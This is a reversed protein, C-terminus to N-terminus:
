IYKPRKKVKQLILQTMSLIDQRGLGFLVPKFYLLGVIMTSYLIGSLLFRIFINGHAIFIKDVALMAGASFILFVFVSLIQHKIYHLFNLKLLRCNFYLQVNVGIIQMIVMKIALGTAGANLGMKNEPAILFFGVPIGILMFVIGIKSYLGTESAAMFVVSSLQGYTQHIPYFAMIILPWLAGSYQKGAMIQIVKDAQVAIFCSITAAISYLLPVYRSFLHSMRNFDNSSHAISFERWILTVMAGTFVFCASGILYSLGYFGQEVSGSFYQLLWRDLIGVILAVVSFWFLPSSYHYFENVYGKVKSMSLWLNKIIVYGNRRLILIIAILLFAMIFYNYFFLSVINLQNYFFLPLLLLLGFIKQAMRVIESSVTLGYADAMRNFVVGSFWTLIGWIGALYVYFINQDPWVRSNLSCAQTLAVFALVVLSIVFSFYLYFSVLGSDNQRQSLKTYFCVSTGMDLFGFIQQFFNTLFNFNGYAIPGLGRPIIAQTALGIFFAFFNAALKFLYRKKLSDEPIPIENTLHIGVDQM